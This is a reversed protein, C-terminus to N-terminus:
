FESRGALRLGKGFRKSVAECSLNLLQAEHLPVACEVSKIELIVQECVIIDARYGCELEIGDYNVPLPVQCEHAIGNRDLEHCLCREYVSELLGPGFRKHVRMALGIIRHTHDHDHVLGPHM